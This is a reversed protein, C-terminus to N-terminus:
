LSEIEQLYYQAQNAINKKEEPKMRNLTVYAYGIRPNGKLLSENEMYFNWYLSNFPCARAGTKKKHDYHCNKCYNSMKSIYAASSVYPKSGVKGGDAYQSMGRTNTIEVWELADIYIGLYWADMEDPDIGALLGFNGTIMLRQIHHAYATNLSQQICNKLCNMKTEGTWFWEPLKRTHTFFNLGSYFPMEAWYIGRMYERWGIIQRIFGETQAISIEQHRRKWEEIVRICVEQPSILKVNMAFSLRSHFLTGNQESMVDQYKGFFHLLHTCFYELLELAENRSLPWHLINNEINGITRIGASEIEKIIPSVDHSFLLPPPANIAADFGSRNEHDYNWKGGEPEEGNMLLGTKRRIMRYFSEMLYTKKGSFFKKLDDRQTIFHETDYERHSINLRNCWERLYLDPRYEDPLQYEFHRIHHLEILHNLNGLIHQHNQQDNIRIYCVQHGKAQLEEAFNRMAAFFASVKQIHHTCYDTEERVEMMVYLVDNRKEKFWSHQHNLQDGLLLRLTHYSKM